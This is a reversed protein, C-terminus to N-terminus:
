GTEARQVQVEIFILAEPANMTPWLRLQMSATSGEIRIEKIFGTFEGPLVRSAGVLLTLSFMEPKDWNSSEYLKGLDIRRDSWKNLPTNVVVIRHRGVQYTGENTDSFVVWLMNDNDYIEVGFVNRPHGADQIYSFTPFVRVVFSREFLTRAARGRIDQRVHITAWENGDNAGDQTVHMGLCSERDVIDSRVLAKDDPGVILDTEWGYPKLAHSVPDFTLHRLRPNVIPPYEVRSGLLLSGSGLIFLLCLAISLPAFIKELRQLAM